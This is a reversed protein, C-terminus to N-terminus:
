SHETQQMKAQGACRLILLIRRANLLDIRGDSFTIFQAAAPGKRL